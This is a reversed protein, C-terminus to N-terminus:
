QLVAELIDKGKFIKGSAVNHVFDPSEKLLELFGSKSFVNLDLKDTAYRSLIEGRSFKDRTVAFIDMDSYIDHTGKITSGYQVLILVTDDEAIAQIVQEIDVPQKIAFFIEYITHSLEFFYKSIERNPVYYRYPRKSSKNLLHQEMMKKISSIVSVKSLGTADVIANITAGDKQQYIVGSVLLLSKKAFLDLIEKKGRSILLFKELNDVFPIRTNAAWYRNRKEPHTVLGMMFLKGMAHSISSMGEDLELALESSTKEGARILQILHKIIGLSM